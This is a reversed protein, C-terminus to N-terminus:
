LGIVLDADVLAEFPEVGSDIMGIILEEIKYEFEDVYRCFAVHSGNFALYALDYKADPYGSIYYVMDTRPTFEREISKSFYPLENLSFLNNIDRSMTYIAIPEDKVKSYFEEIKLIM